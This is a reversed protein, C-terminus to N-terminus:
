WTIDKRRVYSPPRNSTSGEDLPECGSCGEGEEETLYQQQEECWCLGSPGDWDLIENAIRIVNQSYM